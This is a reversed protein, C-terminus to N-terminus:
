NDGQKPWWAYVWREVGLGCKLFTVKGPKPDRHIPVISNAGHKSNDFSYGQLLEYINTTEMVWFKLVGISVYIIALYLDVNSLYVM